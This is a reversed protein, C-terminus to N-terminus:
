RWIYALLTLALGVGSITTLTMMIYWLRDCRFVCLSGLLFVLTLVWFTQILQIYM